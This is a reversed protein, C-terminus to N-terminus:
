YDTKNELNNIIDMIHPGKWFVKQCNPNICQFFENYTKFTGHKVLKKITEKDSVKKLMANCVSCRATEINFEYILNLQQQLQNLYNYVGKGELLIVNEKSRNYFPLDKTIILRNSQVAYENLKEDPVPNISYFDVLDSAYITDYGFIRLFRTLKGLMADTLFKM